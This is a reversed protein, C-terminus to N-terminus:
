YSPTAIFILMNTYLGHQQTGPINLKLVLQSKTGTPEKQGSLIPEHTQRQAYNAFHMYTNSGIFTGACNKGSCRYGFGYTLINEWPSATAETCTGSDCTTDPIAAKTEPDTPSSVAYGILNYRSATPNTLIITVERKTPNTASLPGFSVLTPDVRLQMPRLANDTQYDTIAKPPQPKPTPTPTTLVYVSTPTPKDLSIGDIELQYDKNYLTTAYLAQPIGWLFVAILTAATLLYRMANIPHEREHQEKEKLCSKM